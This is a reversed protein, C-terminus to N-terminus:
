KTYVREGTGTKMGDKWMFPVTDREGSYVRRFMANVVWGM